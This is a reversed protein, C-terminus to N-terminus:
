AARKLKVIPLHKQDDLYTVGVELCVGPDGRTKAKPPGRVVTTRHGDSGPNGDHVSTPPRSVDIPKTPLRATWPWTPGIKRSGPM